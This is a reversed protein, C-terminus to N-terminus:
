GRIHILSLPLGTITEIEKITMSLAGKRITDPKKVSMTLPLTEKCDLPIPFKQIKIITKKGENHM